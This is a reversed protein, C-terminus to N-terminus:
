RTFNIYTATQWDSIFVSVLSRVYDIEVHVDPLNPLDWSFGEIQKLLNWLLISDTPPAESDLSLDRLEICLSHDAQRPVTFVYEGALGEEPSFYFPGPIPLGSYLDLGCTNAKVCVKYPFRGHNREQDFEIFKVHITSHEKTMEVPVVVSEEMGSVKAAFRYLPDGDQGSDVVWGSEGSWHSKGFCAAGYISVVDSRRVQLSYTKGAMAGVTTTDRVRSEEGLVPFAELYMLDTPQLGQKDLFEFFLTAPCSSRDEKIPSQCSSCIAAIALAGTLTRLQLM